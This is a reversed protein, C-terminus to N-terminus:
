DKGLKEIAGKTFIALRGAMAGPALFEASLNEVRSVNAGRMSRVAKGVGEDKSVVILPGIKTKYKRGRKKIKGKRVKKQSIRDLEDKLGLAELVKKVESTKKLKEISDDVVIPLEKVSSIRHGRKEVLKKDATAAIASRIAKKREKKNIKQAWLTEVKPPHAPRGKVAQPVKRARYMLYGPIKGHLRSMRAMERGMMTWRVGRRSGHYHASSRMGAAISTSHPQRRNSQSALVARLILDERLPESFVKPLDIKSVAKGEKDYVNVKMEVM